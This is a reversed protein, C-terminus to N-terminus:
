NERIERDRQITDCLIEMKGELRSIRRNLNELRAMLASFLVIIVSILAETNVM